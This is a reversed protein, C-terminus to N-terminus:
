SDRPPNKREDIRRNVERLEANEKELADNLKRLDENDQRLSDIVQKQVVVAGQAADVSIRAAEPRVKFLAVLGGAIGGGGILIAVLQLVNDKM